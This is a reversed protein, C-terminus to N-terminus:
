CWRQSAHVGSVPHFHLFWGQPLLAEERELKQVKRPRHLDLGCFWPFQFPFCCFFSCILLAREVVCSRGNQKWEVGADDSHIAAGWGGRVFDVCQISSHACSAFSCVPQQSFEGAGKRRGRHEKKRQPAPPQPTKKTRHNRPEGPIKLFVRLVGRWGGGM